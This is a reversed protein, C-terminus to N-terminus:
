IFSQDLSTPLKFLFSPATKFFVTFIHNKAFSVYKLEEVLM